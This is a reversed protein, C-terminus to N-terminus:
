VLQELQDKLQALLETQNVHQGIDQFTDALDSTSMFWSGEPSMDYMDDISRAEAVLKRAAELRRGGEIELPVPDEFANVLSISRDTRVRILVAEPLTNNAFTNQKGSPLSTLFAKVFAVAAELTVERDGLNKELGKMNVTAFRYLTSSTMQVTGIMGAGTEESAEVFDDVATFYDFEPESASVGIAHAVQVAADVNYDAAEAVMRGFMAIDVSHQVNLLESATKKTWNEDTDALIRSAVNTIQQDSLFLLYSTEPYDTTEEDETASKSKPQKETSIGAKKLIEVVTDSMTDLEDDTFNESSSQEARLEQIRGMIKEVVKKTRFGRKTPDLYNDFDKRIARKWAQSSVRQRPVGGFTASKPAGTDDRNINNPPLTQLVHIDLYTTM